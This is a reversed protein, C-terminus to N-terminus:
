ALHGSHSLRMRFALRAAHVREARRKTTVHPLSRRLALQAVCALTDAFSGFGPLPILLGSPPPPAGSADAPEGSDIALTLRSPNATLPSTMDSASRVTSVPGEAPATNWNRPVSVTIPRPGEAWIRTSSLAM